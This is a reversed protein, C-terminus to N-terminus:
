PGAGAGGIAVDVPQGVKLAATAGDPRAEVRYVLKARSDKSYLIPPTFEAETAIFDVTATLGAACRDCGVKIMDGAKVAALSPEPLFFRIKKNIDPLLSVVPQGAAVHEGAEFLTEEVVGAAAARVTRRDLQIKAQALAAEEAAVNRTAADIEEPRAPLKAVDLQREISEVQATASDRKTKADDVASQAVVGKERLVLKRTYDDDASSFSTRAQSLQAAIVGIEEARKGKKLDALQAEAQALRAEAGAVAQAENADDLKFLLDGEAVPKGAQAAREAVRGGSEASLYVYTGSVYGQLSPQNNGMCAALLLALGVAFIPRPASM